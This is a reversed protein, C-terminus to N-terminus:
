VCLKQTDFATLRIQDACDLIPTPAFQLTQAFSSERQTLYSFFHARGGGLHRGSIPLWQAFQTEIILFQEFNAM